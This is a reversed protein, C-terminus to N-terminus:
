CVKFTIGPGRSASHKRWTLSWGVPAHPAGDEEVLSEEEHDGEEGEEGGVEGGGMEWRGVGEGGVGIPQSDPLSLSDGYPLILGEVM